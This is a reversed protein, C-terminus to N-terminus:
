VALAFAPDLLFKVGVEDQDCQRPQERVATLGADVSAKGVVALHLAFKLFLRATTALFM